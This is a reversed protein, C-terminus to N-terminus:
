PLGVGAIGAGCRVCRGGRIGSPSSSFGHRRIAIAGCAPCYTHEGEDGWVNGTYVHHLGAELGIERARRLTAVPTPPAERWRNDPHFRSLHWPLSASVSLLFRAADALEGEDDNLGPIVLTTVEVWVGGEHLARISDLVAEQPGKCLKRYTEARMAKLDVNAADLFSGAADRAVEATMIGNTVFVNRLGARRALIGVDKDHEYHITPESYTYSISACGEAEAAAVVAEPRVLEGAIRGGSRRVAESMGHNQCWACQLNCGASAISMSLSGPQFHCLPKKEIPDANMALLRGYALAFLRGGRNERVECLGRKGERIQCRHACLGCRVAGEDGEPEWFLAEKETPEPPM